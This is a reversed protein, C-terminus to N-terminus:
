ETGPRVARRDVQRAAPPQGESPTIPRRPATEPSEKAEGSRGGNRERAEVAEVEALNRELLVRFSALYSAPQRRTSEIDRRVAQEAQRADNVISAAEARAEAVVLAESLAKERERFSRLQFQRRDENDSGLSFLAWGYCRQAQPSPRQFITRCEWLCSPCCLGARSWATASSACDASCTASPGKM